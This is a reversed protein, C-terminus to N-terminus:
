NNLLGASGLGGLLSAAVSPDQAARQRIKNSAEQRIMEIPSLKNSQSTVPKSTPLQLQTPQIPQKNINFMNSSRNARNNIDSLQKDINSSISSQVQRAGERIGENTAQAAAQRGSTFMNSILPALISAQKSTDSTINKSDDYVKRLDKLARGKSLM